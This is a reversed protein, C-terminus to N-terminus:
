TAKRIKAEKELEFLILYILQICLESRGANDTTGTLYVDLQPCYFAFAGSLGSHGYFSLRDEKEFQGMTLKMHGGGYEVPAYDGQLPLYHAMKQWHSNEFLRGEVFAQIFIMLDATTSVGGGAGQASSIVKPRALYDEGTYLPPIMAFESSTLFSHNMLLPSFINKEICADLSQHTISEIIQGLLMYNIDAYYAEKSGPIFHSETQKVWDLMDSFEYSFDEQKIRNKLLIPEEYFVNPLGSTQFLLDAITIHKTQDKGAYHHLNKLKEKSFFNTIITKYDLKKQDILQLIITTMWLKTVSALVFPTDEKIDGHSLQIYDDSHRKKLRIIARPLENTQVFKDFIRELNVHQM